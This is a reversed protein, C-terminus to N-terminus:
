AMSNMDLDDDRSRSAMSNMDAHVGRGHSRSRGSANDADCANQIMDRDSDHSKSEASQLRSMQEDVDSMREHSGSASEVHESMRQDMDCDHMDDRTAKNHCDDPEVHMHERMGVDPDLLAHRDRSRSRDRVRALEHNYRQDNASGAPMGNSSCDNAGHVSPQVSNQAVDDIGRPVVEVSSVIADDRRPPVEHAGSDHRPEEDDEHDHVRMMFVAVCQHFWQNGLLDKMGHRKTGDLEHELHQEGRGVFWSLAIARRCHPVGPISKLARGLVVCTLDSMGLDLKAIDCLVSWVHENHRIAKTPVRGRGLVQVYAFMEPKGGSLSETYQILAVHAHSELTLMSLLVLHRRVDTASVSLVRGQWLVHLIGNDHLTSMDVVKAPGRWGPREKGIPARYFDVLCGLELDLEVSSKHSQAKLARKVRDTALAETMCSMALERLRASQGVPGISDDDRLSELPAHEFDTMMLPPTRGFVAQYPSFGGINTLTNKCFVSECLVLSDNYPVGDSLCQDRVKVFTDRIIAHHREVVSAHTREPLAMRSVGWKGLQVGAWDSMIGGEQDCVLTTPPGFIRFWEHALVHMLASDEVSSVFCAVSFRTSEDILHVVPRREIYMIDMQVAQNFDSSFRATTRPQPNPKKWKRCIACAECVPRIENLVADAVGCTRLIQQMKDASAHWWRVHLRRLVARVQNINSTDRLWRGVRRLDWASWDPMDDPHSAQTEADAKRDSRLNSEPRTRFERRPMGSESPTRFELQPMGSEAQPQLQQQQLESLSPADRLLKSIAADVADFDAHAEALEAVEDAVGPSTVSGAAHSNHETDRIVDAGQSATMPVEHRSERVVDSVIARGGAAVACSDSAVARGHSVRPTFARARHTAESLDSWRCEGVKRSHSTDLAGKHGRCGPCHRYDSLQNTSSSPFCVDLPADTQFSVRKPARHVHPQLEDLPASLLHHALLLMSPRPQMAVDKESEHLTHERCACKKFLYSTGIDTKAIAIVVYQKRMPYSIGHSVVKGGVACLDVYGMKSHPHQRLSQVERINLAPSSKPLCLFGVTGRSCLDSLLSVAASARRRDKHCGGPVTTGPLIIVCRSHSGNCVASRIMDEDTRRCLDGVHTVFPRMQVRVEEQIGAGRAQGSYKPFIVVGPPVGRQLTPDKSAIANM